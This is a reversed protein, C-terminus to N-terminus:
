VAGIGYMPASDSSFDKKELHKPLAFSNEQVEDFKQKEIKGQIKVFHLKGIAKIPRNDNFYFADVAYLPTDTLISLSKLFIYAVKISMFSGPGNAYVFADIEYRELLEKYIQPLVDSSRGESCITEVLEGNKYIGVLIPSSLAVLLIDVREKPM